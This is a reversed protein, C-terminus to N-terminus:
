THGSKPADRDYNWPSITAVSSCAIGCIFGIRVSDSSEQIWSWGSAVKRALPSGFGTSYSGALDRRGRESTVLDDVYCFRGCALSHLVRFGAVAEVKRKRRIFVLRYGEAFQRRVVSVFDKEKLHPRLQAVVRWCARIDADTKAPVVSLVVLGQHM